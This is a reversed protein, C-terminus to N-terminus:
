DGRNQSVLCARLNFCNTVFLAIDRNINRMIYKFKEGQSCLNLLPNTEALNNLIKDRLITYTPCQLVFHLEDEVSNPCFPCVRMEKPLKKHRGTEILLTHNSLRLKTLQTRLKYDKIDLLYSEIGIETKFTAYTRLKSNENKIKEFANQHFQDSLTQFIKKNVCLPKNEYQNLFFCLMGNTELTKRINSLWTCKGEVTDKSACKFSLSLLPSCKGKRIREWNKVAAKQAFLSLPIKGLELLVGETTTNKHVGLLHKCFMLHVKEVPNHKPLPLCGWFDSGYLLIPKILSDFLHLTERPHINFCLGMKRKLGWYAKLGRSRLDDLTTKTEGSPTLMLGLYKYSRVNELKKGGLYFPNRILRGTKNFIMCKSKDLNVTLDNETCYLNLKHLLSQLGNESDCFMVLDDAWMICNNTLNEHIVTNNETILLKPLDSVFINFLLPSLVCGQRVGQNIKFEDSIKNGIKVCAKDNNYLNSITKLFKGTVGYAILKKFLIDRPITDFAKSFDIFCGYLWKSNTHCYKRILNYLILHADTTRNGPLFGLQSPSLIDKDTCYKLLRNNLLSYFLKAICSLLSIGRYNDPIDPSGHKFIPTIIATYWSPIACKTDFIRNFVSLLVNPYVSFTCSIMENIVNDLGPCKGAKLIGTAVALEEMTFAYDLPGINHDNIPLVVERKANLISKFHKAWNTMKINNSTINSCSNPSLKDLLKWFKRPNAKNCVKM